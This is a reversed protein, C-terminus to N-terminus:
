RFLRERNILERTTGDAHRRAAEIRAAKDPENLLASVQARKFLAMPYARDSPPVQDLAARAADLRRDALYLVGLELNRGFGAANAARAAEFAEIAVSTQQVSMALDGLHVLEAASFSRLARAKQRLALAAARNGERERITALAEIAVLREPAEAIVEALLPAARQWARGRAYHLALYTRVDISQPAIRSARKFADLAQQEHGLLSHSTALRLTADLNDPDGALIREFLPIADAYREQVFLGSAKDIVGFLRVMDAPRPADRRVLPSATAGIYGLSALRRRADEDLNDPTRAATVSPVPYDDLAKRMGAPLNAGAGLNKSEKPDASLDYTELTGAEIGKFQGAVAMTQPQWGYELFPKMAEGLVVEQETGRLSLAADIGAWDLVTHFIRRTSVPAEITGPSVGPGALVLPVHMTSQYLLNGHQMEGHDGLGEGHDALVVIARSGPAGSEFAQVLRGLQQDMAAVEGLYPKSAYRSRFPEPPTYPTHPDFYHVWLFVPQPSNHSLYALVRGTTDAASRESTGPQPEDDFVDFGRALGFRRSLVFSSVFGATRYGASKLREALVPHRNDLHRANEHIGHGAPYLGTMISAHSPLTEPVTAYAQRFRRGRAALANFSPTEIGQAGPGIADARTTDLTVLLISPRGDAQRAPRGPAADSCGGSLVAMAAILLTATRPIV